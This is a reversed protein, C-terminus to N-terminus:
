EVLFLEKLYLGCFVNQLIQTDEVWERVRMGM